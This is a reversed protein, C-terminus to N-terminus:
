TSKVAQQLVRLMPPTCPLAACPLANNKEGAATTTTCTVHLLLRTTSLLSMHSQTNWGRWTVVFWPLPQSTSLRQSCLSLSCAPSINLVHVLPWLFALPYFTDVTSIYIYFCALFNWCPYKMWKHLWCTFILGRWSRAFPFNVTVLCTKNINYEILKIYYRAKIKQQNMYCKQCEPHWFGLSGWSM